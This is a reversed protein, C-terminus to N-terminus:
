AATGERNEDLWAYLIDQVLQQLTTGRKVAEIKLGQHLFEPLPTSLRPPIPKQVNPM